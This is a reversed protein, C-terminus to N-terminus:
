GKYIYEERDAQQAICQCSPSFMFIRHQDNERQNKIGPTLGNINEQHQCCSRHVICGSKEYPFILALDSISGRRNGSHHVVKEHEAYEFVAAKDQFIDVGKKGVLSM